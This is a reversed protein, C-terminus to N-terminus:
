NFNVQNWFVKLCESRVVEKSFLVKASNKIPKGGGIQCKKQV